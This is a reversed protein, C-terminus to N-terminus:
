SATIRDKGMDPRLALYAFYFSVGFLVLVGIVNRALLFPM